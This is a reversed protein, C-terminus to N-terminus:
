LGGKILIKWPSKPFFCDLEEQHELGLQEQPSWRGCTAPGHCQVIGSLPCEPFPLVPPVSFSRNGSALPPLSLPDRPSQTASPVRRVSQGHHCDCVQLCKDFSVSGLSFLSVKGKLGDCRVLVIPFFM